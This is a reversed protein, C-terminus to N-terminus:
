NPNLNTLKAPRPAVAQLPGSFQVQEKVKREDSSGDDVIYDPDDNYLKDNNPIPEDPFSVAPEDLFRAGKQLPVTGERSSTTSPFTIPPRSSSSLEDGTAPASGSAGLSNVLREDFYFPKSIPSAAGMSVNSDSSGADDSYRPSSSPQAAGAPRSSGALPAVASGGDREEQAEVGAKRALFRDVFGLIDEQEEDEFERVWVVNGFRESGWRTGGLKEVRKLFGLFVAVLVSLPSGSGEIIRDAVAKVFSARAGSHPALTLLVKEAMGFATRKKGDAGPTHCPLDEALVHKAFWSVNQAWHEGKPIALDYLEDSVANVLPLYGDPFAAGSGDCSWLAHQRMKDALAELRLESKLSVAVVHFGQTYEEGFIRDLRDAYNSVEDPGLTPLPHEQTTQRRLDNFIIELTSDSASRVAM